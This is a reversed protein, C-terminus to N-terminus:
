MAFSLASAGIAHWPKPLKEKEANREEVGMNDNSGDRKMQAMEIDLINIHTVPASNYCPKPAM